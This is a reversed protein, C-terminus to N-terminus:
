PPSEREIVIESRTFFASALLSRVDARHFKCVGPWNSIPLGFETRYPSQGATSHLLRRPRPNKRGVAQM